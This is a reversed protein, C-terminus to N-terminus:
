PPLPLPTPVRLAASFWTLADQGRQHLTALISTLIGQAKAGAWTRNGGWVKRNVVAPRIAQEARWNTAELGRTELFPFLEEFHKALHAALRENAADRKRPEILRWLRSRLHGIAVALGRPSVLGENRRERLAFMDHLVELVARPFRVAGGVATELLERCRRMLHALCQQHRAETFRDYPAWGDHVLDGPWDLGLLREAPEHSRTPDIEYCTARRAAFVHLWANWGGVRWGTEDPAVQQSRRVSQRVQLYADQSRGATRLLSRASTSRSIHVGFLTEFAKACKGHSLGLQKNLLVFAAHADAGLQHGAAGLANSTQLAHRGQVHEGCDRCTGLHVNFQRVITQRVIETQHQQKVQRHVFHRGGCHPCRKPLPAEHTEDVRAPPPAARHAHQGHDDGSKRGPKKPDPKPGEAKRFPAAQRKGGRRAEELAAHL